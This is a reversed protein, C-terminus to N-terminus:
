DHDLANQWQLSPHHFPRRETEYGPECPCRAFRNFKKGFAKSILGGDETTGDRRLIDRATLGTDGEKGESDM